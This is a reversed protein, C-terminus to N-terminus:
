YNAGQWGLKERIEDLDNMDIVGDPSGFPVVDAAANHGTAGERNFAFLTEIFDTGDTCGDGNVDGKEQNATTIFRIVPSPPGYTRNDSGFDDGFYPWILVFHEVGPVLGDITITSGTITQDPLTSSSSVGLGDFFRVYYGSIGGISDEASPNWILQVSDPGLHAGFFPNEPASLSMEFDDTLFNTSVIYNSSLSASSNTSRAEQGTADNIVASIEMSDSSPTETGGAALTWETLRFSSSAAQQAVGATILGFHASVLLLSRGWGIRWGTECGRLRMM